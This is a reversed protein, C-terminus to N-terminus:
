HLVRGEGSLNEEGGFSTGDLPQKQHDVFSRARDLVAAIDVILAVTGDGLLTSGSFGPQNTLYEALPKIVVEQQGLLKDVGLGAEMDGHRVVVVFVKKKDLSAGTGRFIRGLRILPMTKQHVSIVEFGEVSSIEESTIRIAEQVSSLPIAMNQEGVRVLLAHVIALTLPVRLEMTTGRGPESFIKVVGGLREINKKVVDMGVGRGSTESVGKSTSIGPYFIFEWVQENSLAPAEDRGILGLSVAKQILGERDLGQGDDSLRILVFNGEQSASLELRGTEQKGLSARVEPPEIGHDMANRVLHLLPDAIQEMMRKDLSTDTGSMVLEVKKDLKRSLDRVVRPFRNFLHKVPLMRMNMVGDQLDRLTREFAGVQEGMRIFLNKLPKLERAGLVRQSMWTRYLLRTEEAMKTLASKIVVLEGVDGMLQEVKDLDVRVTQAQFTEQATPAVAAKSTKTASNDQARPPPELQPKDKKDIHGEGSVTDFLNDIADDLQEIMAPSPEQNEEPMNDSASKLGPLLALLGSWMKRLPEPNFGDGKGESSLAEALREEWENLLNVVDDYDMYHASSKLKEIADQCKLAWDRQFQEPINALPGSIECAFDLFIEYLEKDEEKLPEDVPKGGESSEEADEPGLEVFGNLIGRLRPLLGDIMQGNYNEPSSTELEERLQGLKNLLEEVGVYHTVREMDKLIRVLVEVKVDRDHLLTHLQSYLSKMEEAYISYLEQDEIAAIGPAPTGGGGTMGSTNPASRKSAESQAGSQKGDTEMLTQLASTLGSVDTEERQNSAVEEALRKLLDVGQFILDMTEPVIEMEGSRVKHFLNEMTHALTAMRDLGMYGSAGKISHLNRFCDNLLSTNDPAQELLLLNPELEDLNERTEVVFDQWMEQDFNNM